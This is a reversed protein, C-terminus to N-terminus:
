ITQLIKVYNSNPLNINHTLENTILRNHLTVIIESPQKLKEIFVVSIEKSYYNVKYTLSCKIRSLGLREIKLNYSIINRNIIQYDLYHSLQHKIEGVVCEKWNNSLTNVDKVLGKFYNNYLENNNMKNLNM